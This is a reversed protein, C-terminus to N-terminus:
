TVQRTKFYYFPFLRLEERTKAPRKAESEADGRVSLKADYRARASLSVLCYYLVCERELKPVYANIETEAVHM